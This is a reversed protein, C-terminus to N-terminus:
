AVRQIRKMEELLVANEEQLRGIRKFNRNFKRLARWLKPSDWNVVPASVPLLPKSSEDKAGEIGQGPRPRKQKTNM